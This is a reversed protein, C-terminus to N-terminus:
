KSVGPAYHDYMSILELQNRDINSAVRGLKGRFTQPYKLHSGSNRVADSVREITPISSLFGYIEKAVELFRERAAIREEISLSRQLLYDGLMKSLEGVVDELGSLWIQLPVSICMHSGWHPVVEKPGKGIIYPYYAEVALFEVIEQGCDADFQWRMFAPVSVNGLDEWRAFMEEKFRLIKETEGRKVAEIANKSIINIQRVLDYCKPVGSTQEKLTAAAKELLEDFYM